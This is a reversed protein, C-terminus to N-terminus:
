IFKSAYTFLAMEVDACIWNNNLRLGADVLAKPHPCNNPLQQSFFRLINLWSGYASPWNRQTKPIFWGYGYNRASLDLWNHQQVILDGQGFVRVVRTDIAGYDQPLGFRLVKSLYTPGIGKEINGELIHVPKMPNRALYEASNGNDNHLTKKPLVIEIGKIRGPNRLKGWDAVRKVDQLSIGLNKDSNILSVELDLIDPFGNAYTDNRWSYSKYLDAFDNKDRFENLEVILKQSLGHYPFPM